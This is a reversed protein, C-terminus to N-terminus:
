KRMIFVVGLVLLLVVAIVAVLMWTTETAKPSMFGELLDERQWVRIWDINFKMLSNFGTCSCQATCAASTCEGPDCSGPNTLAGQGVALDFVVQMPNELSGGPLTRSFLPNVATQLSADTGDRPGSNTMVADHYYDIQMQGDEIPYWNIAYTHFQRYDVGYHQSIYEVTDSPSVTVENMTPDRANLLDIGGEENFRSILPCISDSAGSIQVRAEFYGFRWSTKSEVRGSRIEQSTLRPQISLCGNAVSIEAADPVSWNTFDLSTFDDCFVVTYPGARSGPAFCCSIATQAPDKTYSQM